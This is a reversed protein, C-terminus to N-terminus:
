RSASFLAKRLLLGSLRPHRLMALIIGRHWDFRAEAAVAELVGDSALVRFVADIEEGTMREFIRRFLRGARIETGIRGRWAREYRSLFRASLDDRRLGEALVEAAVEACLMGYYIGGGSTPKVQGAADGVAVLRDAYTRRIPSLPIVWHRVPTCAGERGGAVPGRLLGHLRRGPMAGGAAGARLYEDRGRRFPVVWAFEGGGPGFFVATERFGNGQVEAQATRLLQRPRGMGFLHQAGYRPGAAIVGARARYTEPHPAEGNGGPSTRRVRVEVGDQEVKLGTVKAGRELRVGAAEAREALAQDLRGRETIYALAGGNRYTLGIGGPSVLRLAGVEGIVLGRPLNLGDFGDAGIVGSCDVPEGIVLHEELVVVSFGEAGLRRAAHLGAPGAGVVLVDARVM